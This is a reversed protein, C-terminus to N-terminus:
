TANNNIAEGIGSLKGFRDDVCLSAFSNSQRNTSIRRLSQGGYEHSGEGILEFAV